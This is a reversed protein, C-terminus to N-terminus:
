GNRRETVKSAEALWPFLNYSYRDEAKPWLHLPLCSNTDRIGDQIRDLDSNKRKDTKRKRGFPSPQTLRKGEQRTDSLLPTRVKNAIYLEEWTFMSQRIQHLHYKDSWLIKQRALIKSGELRVVLILDAKARKSQKILVETKGRERQWRAGPSPCLLFSRWLALQLRDLSVNM